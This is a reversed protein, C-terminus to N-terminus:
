LSCPLSDLGPRGIDPRPRSALSRRDRGRSDVDAHDAFRVADAHERLVGCRIGRRPRQLVCAEAGDARGRALTRIAAYAALLLPAFFAITGPIGLELLLQLYSNHPNVGEAFAGVFYRFREKSDYRDFLTSGTGFGHGAMPRERVLRLAERWGEDRAGVLASARSQDSPRDGPQSGPTPAVVVIQDGFTPVGPSWGVALAIAAAGVGLALLIRRRPSRAGLELAFVGAILALVGTRGTSLAAAFVTVGSARVRAVPRTRLYPEDARVAADARLFIGLVNPGNFLGSTGLTRISDDLAAVAAAVGSLLLAAPTLFAFAATLRGAAREDTQVLAGLAAAVLLVASFKIAEVVTSSPDVSWVATLAVLASLGAWAWLWRRAVVSRRQRLGVTAVFGLLLGWFALSAADRLWESWSWSLAYAGVLLAAVAYVHRRALVASVAGVGGLAVLQLATM